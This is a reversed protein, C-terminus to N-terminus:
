FIQSFCWSNRIGNEFNHTDNTFSVLNFKIVPLQCNQKIEDSLNPRFIFNFVSKVSSFTFYDM